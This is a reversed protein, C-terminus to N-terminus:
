RVGIIKHLQVSLRLQSFSKCMIIAYELNKEYDVDYIPQLFVSKGMEVWSLLKDIEEQGLGCRKSILWKIEDAEKIMDDRYGQKPSVTIWCEKMWPKPEVTGSTEVHVWVNKHILREVLGTLDYIAPEGGTICVHTNSPIEVAIDVDSELAKSAFATDCKFRYGNPLTCIDWGKGKGEVSGAEGVPCGGFRIFTMVAGTWEGEGQISVFKEVVPLLMKM